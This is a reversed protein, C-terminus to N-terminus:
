GIYNIAAFFTLGLVVVAIAATTLGVGLNKQARERDV